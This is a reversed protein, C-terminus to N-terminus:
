AEEDPWRRTSSDGTVMLRGNGARQRDHAEVNWAM